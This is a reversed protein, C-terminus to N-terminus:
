QPSPKPLDPLRPADPIPPGEPLRIDLGPPESGGGERGAMFGYTGLAVLGVAILLSLLLAFSRNRDTM